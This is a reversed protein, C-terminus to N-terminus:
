LRQAVGRQLVAGAERVVHLPEFGYPDLDNGGQLLVVGVERAQLVPEFADEHLAVVEAPAVGGGAHL